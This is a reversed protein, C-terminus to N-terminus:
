DQLVSSTISGHEAEMDEEGRRSSLLVHKM